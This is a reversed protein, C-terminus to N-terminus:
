AAEKADRAAKLDRLWSLAPDLDAFKHGFKMLPEMLLERTQSQYSLRGSKLLRPDLVAVMGRDGVSRILRGAAQDLLLNCDSVYVQRDAAWKDMDTTEMLSAVRADDVPNGASRPVRDIIVLSCTQGPADVGTMLSRTGVMVSTQDEKWQQLLMRAPPGDWQSFVRIHGLGALELGIKLADAYKKGSASTASLVLASGGNAKVLEMMHNLAWDPHGKTDFSLRYADPDRTLLAFDEPTTARPIYLASGEYADGFPSEYETRRVSLGADVAFANNLTASVCIATLGYRPPNIGEPESIWRYEPVQWSDRPRQDAEPNTVDGPAMNSVVDATWVRSRLLSSVDVPSAKVAAGVFMGSRTGDEFWRARDAGVSRIFDLDENFASMSNRARRVKMRESEHTFSAENPMERSLSSVWESIEDGILELPDSDPDIEVVAAGFKTKARAAQVKGSIHIDLAQALTMGQGALTKGADSDVFREFTKVMRFVRWADVSRSGQNRVQGPLTHAEDIIAHDFVGLKRNGLIVPAGTSAQVALMSHNTVVVDSYAARQRAATPACVDGFPCDKAGPCADPTTSVLDWIKQDATGPYSHRDNPKPKGDAAPILSDVAWRVLPMLTDLDYDNEDIIVSLLYRKKADEEFQELAALTEAAQAVSPVAKRELIAAATTMTQQACVYNGWGKLITFTPRVGCVEAVADAAKPADKDVVQAQLGLSETSIIARHKMLAAMLFVPVLYALSKGTGTPAKGAVQGAPIDFATTVGTRSLMAKFIDLALALQGPRPSLGPVGVANSVAQCLAKELLEKSPQLTETM